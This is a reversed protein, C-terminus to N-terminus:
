EKEIRVYSKANQSLFKALNEQDIEHINRHRNEWLKDAFKRILNELNQSDIVLVSKENEATRTNYGMVPLSDTSVSVTNNALYSWDQCKQCYHRGENNSWVWNHVCKKLEKKECDLGLSVLPIKMNKGESRDM